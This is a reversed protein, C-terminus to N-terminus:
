RAGTRLLVVWVTAILIRLDLVLTQNHLYHLDYTLKARADAVSAGYPYSVQAWGTIGPLM